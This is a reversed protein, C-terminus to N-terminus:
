KRASRRISRREEEERFYSLVAAEGEYDAFVTSFAGDGFQLAHVVDDVSGSTTIATVSTYSGGLEAQREYVDVHWAIVPVRYLGDVDDPTVVTWGPQAPIDATHVVKLGAISM